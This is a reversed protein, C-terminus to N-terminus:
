AVEGKAKDKENAMVKQLTIAERAFRAIAYDTDSLVFDIGDPQYTERFDIFSDNM